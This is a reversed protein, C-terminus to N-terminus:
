EELKLFSEYTKCGKLFSEHLKKRDTISSKIKEESYKDM